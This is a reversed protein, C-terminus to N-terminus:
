RKAKGPPMAKSKVKAKPGVNAVIAVLEGERAIREHEEVTHHIRYYCEGNREPLKAIIAWTGSPVFTGSPPRYAVTQGLHFKHM